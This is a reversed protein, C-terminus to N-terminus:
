EDGFLGEWLSNAIMANINRIEVRAAQVIDQRHLFDLFSAHYISYCTQNEIRQEHLFQKWENLVNQVTIEKEKAYDSILKRSVPQRTEGMIYVIKLKTEPPPEANMGMRQWHDEYYKELGQPLETISLNQYFGQEIQPLVYRLYMFNNESKDALQNIFEEVSKQQKDIWVRLNPRETVRRIYEQVDKRSQETYEMLNLLHQPAHIVFPLTVRRRTLLFYIGPPLNPPLYLINSGDKALNVEDLADIAIVLKEGERLKSSVEDLLRALFNGNQTANPPLSSYPLNYRNILQQCVSEMFQAASNIGKARENFHAVCNNDQVFKSLIASKGIGPDAEIIFYGNPHNDIFDAIESFVYQRGVFGETKNTILSQFQYLPSSPPLYKLSTTELGLKQQILHLNEEVSADRHKLRLTFIWYRTNKKSDPREDKLVEIYELYDLANQVVEAQRQEKNIESNERQRQPLKLPESTKEVLQWLAQKTTGSAVKDKGKPTKEEDDGTVKLDNEGVWSVKVATEPLSNEQKLNEKALLLLARVLRLVNSKYPESKGFKRGTNEPM